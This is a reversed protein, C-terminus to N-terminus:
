VAPLSESLRYPSDTLVVQVGSRDEDNIFIPARLNVTTKRWDSSIKVIVFTEGGASKGTFATPEYDTFISHPNVVVFRTRVDDTSALWFFPECDDLPILVARRLEPLGVLGEAFNIVDSSTYSYDQGKITINPM